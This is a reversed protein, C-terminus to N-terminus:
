EYFLFLDQSLNINHFEMLCPRNDFATTYFVAGKTGGETQSEIAFQFHPQTQFLYSQYMRLSFNRCFLLFLICVIM